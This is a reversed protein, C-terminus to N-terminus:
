RIQVLNPQPVVVRQSGPMRQTRMQIQQIGVIELHVEAGCAPCTVPSPHEFTIVTSHIGNSFRAGAIELEVPKGCAACPVAPSGTPSPSM